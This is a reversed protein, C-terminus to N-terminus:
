PTTKVQKELQGSKRKKQIPFLSQLAGASHQKESTLM